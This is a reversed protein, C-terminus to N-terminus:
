QHNITSAQSLQDTNYLVLSEKKTATHGRVGSQFKSWGAVMHAVRAVKSNKPQLLIVQKGFCVLAHWTCGLVIGYIYRVFNVGLKM